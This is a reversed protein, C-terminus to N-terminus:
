LLFAPISIINLKLGGLGEVKGSQLLSICLSPLSHFIIKCVTIKLKYQSHSRYINMIYKVIQAKELKQKAYNRKKCM